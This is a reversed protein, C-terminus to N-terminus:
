TYRFTKKKVISIKDDNEFLKFSIFSVVLLMLFHYVLFELVFELSYGELFYRVQLIIALLASFILARTLPKLRKGFLYIIFGFFTGFIIKNRYYYSPVAYEESLSHVILDILAFFAIIISVILIIKLYLRLNLKNKQKM